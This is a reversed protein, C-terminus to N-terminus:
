KTRRVPIVSLEPPREAQVGFGVENAEKREAQVWRKRRKASVPRGNNRLIEQWYSPLHANCEQEDNGDEVDSDSRDGRRRRKRREMRERRKEYYARKKERQHNSKQATQLIMKKSETRLRASFQAYNEGPQMGDFRRKKSPEDEGVKTRNYSDAGRKEDFTSGNRGIEHRSSKTVDLESETRVMGGNGSSGGNGSKAEGGGFKQLKALLEKTKRSLKEDQHDRQLIDLERVKGKRLTRERPGEGTAVVVRTKAKQGRERKKKKKGKRRHESRINVSNWEVDNQENKEIPILDGDNQSAM